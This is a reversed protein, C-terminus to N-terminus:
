EGYRLMIPTTAFYLGALISALSSYPKLWKVVVIVTGIDFFISLSRLFPESTNIKAWFYLLLFYLPPKNYKKLAITTEGLDGIDLWRVSFYEDLWLGKNLGILRLAIALLLIGLVIPIYLKRIDLSFPSKITLILQRISYKFM